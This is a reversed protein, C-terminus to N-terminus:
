REFVRLENLLQALLHVVKAALEVSKGIQINRLINLTAVVQRTATSENHFLLRDPLLTSTKFRVGSMPKYRQIWRASEGAYVSAPAGGFHKAQLVKRYTWRELM